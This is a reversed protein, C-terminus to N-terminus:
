INVKGWMEWFTREQYESFSIDINKEIRYCLYECICQYDHVKSDSYNKSCEKKCWEIVSKTDKFDQKLAKELRKRFM